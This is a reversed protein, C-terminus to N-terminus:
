AVYHGSGQRAEILGEAVLRALVLRVTTRGAGLSAAWEREGPLRDGAASEAVRARIAVSVEHTIGRGPASM